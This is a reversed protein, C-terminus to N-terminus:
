NHTDFATVHFQQSRPWCETKSPSGMGPFQTKNYDILHAEGILRAILQFM